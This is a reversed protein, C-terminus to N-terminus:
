LQLNSDILKHGLHSLQNVKLVSACLPLMHSDPEPPDPGNEKSTAGIWYTLSM